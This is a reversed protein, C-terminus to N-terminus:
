RPGLAVAAVGVHGDEVAVVAVGARGEELVLEVAVEAALGLEEAVRARSDRAREALGVVLGARPEPGVVVRRPRCGDDREEVAPAVLEEDRVAAVRARHEGHRPPARERERLVVPERPGVLERADSVGPPEDDVM